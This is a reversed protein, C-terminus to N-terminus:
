AHKHKKEQPRRQVRVRRAADGDMAEVFFTLGDVPVEDGTELTRGITETLFESVTASSRIETNLFRDIAEVMTGGHVLIEDKSIRKILEPHLESADISEGVLEELIDQFGVLGLVTDKKDLVIALYTRSTQFDKLLGDILRDRKVFLAERAYEKILHDHDGRALAALLDRQAVVGTVAGEPGDTVPIRSHRAMM